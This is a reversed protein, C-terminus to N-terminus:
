SGGEMKAGSGRAEGRRRVEASMEENEAETLGPRQEGDIVRAIEFQVALRGMGPPAEDDHHFTALEDSDGAERRATIEYILAGLATPSSAELVDKETGDPKLTRLYYTTSMDSM